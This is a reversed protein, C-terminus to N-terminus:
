LGGCFIKKCTVPRWQTMTGHRILWHQQQQQQMAETTDLETLGWKRGGKLHLPWICRLLITFRLIELIKLYLFRRHLPLGKLFLIILQETKATAKSFRQIRRSFMQKPFFFRKLSVTHTVSCGSRRMIANRVLPIKPLQQPLIQTPQRLYIGRDFMALPSGYWFEPAKRASLLGQIWLAPCCLPIPFAQAWLVTVTVQGILNANWCESEGNFCRQLTFPSHFLSRPNSPRLSHVLVIIEPNLSSQPGLSSVWLLWLCAQKKWM